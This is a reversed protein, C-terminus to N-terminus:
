LRLVTETPVPCASASAALPSASTASTCAGSSSFFYTASPLSKFRRRTMYLSKTIRPGGPSGAPILDVFSLTSAICRIAAPRALNTERPSSEPVCLRSFDSHFFAPTAGAPPHYTSAPCPM